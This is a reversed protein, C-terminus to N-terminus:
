KKWVLKIKRQKNKFEGEKWNERDLPKGYLMTEIYRILMMYQDIFQKRYIFFNWSAFLLGIICFALLGKGLGLVEFLVIMLVANGILFLWHKAKYWPKRAEQEKSMKAM